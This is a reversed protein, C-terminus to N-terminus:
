AVAAAQRTNSSKNAVVRDILGASLAEQATLYTEKDMLRKFTAAPKGSRDAYIRAIMDSMKALQDASRRHATEDGFTGAQAGHVMLTASENALRTDGAQLVFSAASAAMGTAHTTVEAPHSVIAHYISAADSILGGVSNIYVTIRDVSRLGSLRKEFNAASTGEDGIVGILGHLYIEATDQKAVVEFRPKNTRLWDRHAAAIGTPNFM